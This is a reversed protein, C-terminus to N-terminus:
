RGALSVGNLHCKAPPGIIAWYQFALKTAKHNKLTDPGTNSLFEINKHTELPIPVGHGERQTRVHPDDMVKFEQKRIEALFCYTTPVRQFLEM